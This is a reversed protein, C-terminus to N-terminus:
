KRTSEDVCRFANPSGWQRVNIFAQVLEGERDVFFTDPIKEGGFAANAKGTPDNWITVKTDTLSMREMYPAIAEPEQDLSVALVVVDDRDGPRQALKDLEPWERTCPECWTAWFNLVVFKGRLQELSVDNGEMDKGVLEPFDGGRSEPSLERCLAEGQNQVAPGLAWAFAFVLLGGVMVFAVYALIGLADPGEGRGAPPGAPARASM